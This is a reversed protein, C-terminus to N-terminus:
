EHQHQPESRGRRPETCNRRDGRVRGGAVREGAPLPAFLVPGIMRGRERSPSPQPSPPLGLTPLMGSAASYVRRWCRWWARQEDTEPVPIGRAAEVRQWAEAVPVGALVLLSAAVLSARGISQRCHVAIAKGDGLADRLGELTRVAAVGDVPVGRDPMPLGVFALGHGSAIAAEDRLGLESMESSSLLCALVDFGALRLGMLEDALWDGGRPRATIALRGSGSCGIPYLVPIMAILRMSRNPLVSSGVEDKQRGVEDKWFWKVKPGM